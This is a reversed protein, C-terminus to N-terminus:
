LSSVDRRTLRNKGEKKRLKVSEKRNRGCRFIHISLNALEKTEVKVYTGRWSKREL